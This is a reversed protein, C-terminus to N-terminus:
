MTTGRGEISIKAGREIKKNRKKKADLMKKLLQQSGASARVKAAAEVHENRPRNVYDMTLPAPIRAHLPARGTPAASAAAGDDSGLLHELDATRIHADINTDRKPAAAAAAAASSSSAGARPSSSVLGIAHQAALADPMANKYVASKNFISRSFREILTKLVKKNEPTEKPHESLAALIPGIRSIRLDDIGVPLRGIMAYVNERLQLNPLEAGPLPRLWERFAVLINNSSGDSTGSRFGELLNLHLQVNSVAKQVEALLKLKAVAPKGAKRDTFDQRAAESMSRLIDGAMVLKQESTLGKCKKKKDGDLDETEQLEGDIRMKRKKPKGRAIRDEDFNQDDKDYEALIDDDDDDRDIFARDADNEDLEEESDYAGADEKAANRKRAADKAPADADEEGFKRKAGVRRKPAARKKGKLVRKKGLVNKKRPGADSDSDSDSSSSSSSGSDSGSSDSSSGSDSDSGSDSSSDFDSGAADAGGSNAGTGAAGADKGALIM